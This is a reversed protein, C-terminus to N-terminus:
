NNEKEVQIVVHGKKHGTDVYAHAERIQAMTFTSDIAAKLNGEETLSKLFGLNEITYSAVGGIVKKSSKLSLKIGELIRSLELHVASLYIGGEELLNVCETIPAKGITDFVVDYTANEKSLAELTYDIVEDAGLAKVLEVNAASCVGTVKAGFVKAIQVAYTGIGGSAGYIMVKQGTGVNGKKLYHLAALACHPVAAAEEFTMNSPKHEMVAEEPLCIYEAYAGFGAGTSAFVEDGPNVRSVKKGTKEVIGSLEVGLIKKRPGKFGMALKVPFNFISPFVAGRIRADAANATTAMVKILVENDKPVPKNVEVLHLVEPSGYQTCIIAKM